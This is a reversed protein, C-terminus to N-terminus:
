LRYLPPQSKRAQPTRRSALKITELVPTGMMNHDKNEPSGFLTGLKHFSGYVTRLDGLKICASLDSKMAAKVGPPGIHQIRPIRYLSM